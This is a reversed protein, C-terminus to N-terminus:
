CHFTNFNTRLSVTYWDTCWSLKIGGIGTDLRCDWPNMIPVPSLLCLINFYKIRRFTLEVGFHKPFGLQNGWRCGGALSRGIRLGWDREHSVRGLNSFRIISNFLASRGGSQYTATCHLLLPKNSASKVAINCFLCCCNYCNSPSIVETFLSNTVILILNAFIVMRPSLQPGPM